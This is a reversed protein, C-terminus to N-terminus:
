PDRGEQACVDDVAAQLAPYPSVDSAADCLWRNWMPVHPLLGSLITFAEQFRDFRHDFPYGSM